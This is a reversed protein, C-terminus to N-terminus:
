VILIGREERWEKEREGVREMKSKGREWVTERGRERVNESEGEM